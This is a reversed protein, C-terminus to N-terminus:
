ITWQDTYFSSDRSDRVVTKCVTYRDLVRDYEARNNADSKPVERWDIEALKWTDIPM